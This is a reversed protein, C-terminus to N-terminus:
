VCVFLVTNQSSFIAMDCSHTVSEQDVVVETHTSANRVPTWIMLQSGVGKRLFSQGKM